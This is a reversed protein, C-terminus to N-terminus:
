NCGILLMKPLIECNYTIGGIANDTAYLFLIIKLRAVSQLFLQLKKGEKTFTNGWFGRLKYPQFPLL